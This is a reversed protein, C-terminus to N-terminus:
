KLQGKVFQLVREEETEGYSESELISRPAKVKKYDHEKVVIQYGDLSEIKEVECKVKDDYCVNTNAIKCRKQAEEPSDAVYLEVSEYGLDSICTVKYM